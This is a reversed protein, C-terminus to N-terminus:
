GTTAVSAFPGTRMRRPSRNVQDLLIVEHPLQLVREIPREFPALAKVRESNASSDHSASRTESNALVWRLRVTAVVLAVPPGCAATTM